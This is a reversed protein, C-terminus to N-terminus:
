KGVERRVNFLAEALTLGEFEDNPRAREDLYTRVLLGAPSEEYMTRTGVSLCSESTFDNSFLLYRRGPVLPRLLPNQYQVTVGRLIATGYPEQFTIRGGEDIGPGGKIVTEVRATVTSTIRDAQDEPAPV